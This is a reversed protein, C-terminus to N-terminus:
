KSRHPKSKVLSAVSAPLIEGTPGVNVDSSTMTGFIASSVKGQRNHLVRAELRNQRERRWKM